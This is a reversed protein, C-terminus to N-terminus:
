PADMFLEGQGGPPDEREPALGVTRWDFDDDPFEPDDKEPPPETESM